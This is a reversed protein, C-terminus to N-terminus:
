FDHFAPFDYSLPVGSIVFDCPVPFIHEKCHPNTVDPEKGYMKSCSLLVIDNTIGPDENYLPKNYRPVAAYVLGTPLMFFYEKNIFTLNLDGGVTAYYMRFDKTIEKGEEEEEKIKKKM